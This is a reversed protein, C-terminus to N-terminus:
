NSGGFAASNAPWSNVAGGGGQGLQASQAASRQGDSTPHSSATPPGATGPSKGEMQSRYRPSTKPGPTFVQVVGMEALTLMLIVWSLDSSLDGCDLSDLEEARRVALVDDAFPGDDERGDRVTILLGLSSPLGLSHIRASERDV